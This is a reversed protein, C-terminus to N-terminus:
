GCKTSRHQSLNLQKESLAKATRWATPPHEEDARMTIAALDVTARVAAVQSAAQLQAGGIEPMLSRFFAAEIV